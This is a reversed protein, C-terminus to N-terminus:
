APAAGIIRVVRAQLQESLDEIKIWERKVSNALLGLVENKKKRLAPDDPNPRSARIAAVLSLIAAQSPSSLNRHWARNAGDDHTDGETSAATIGLNAILVENFIVYDFTDLYDRSSAVAAIVRDVRDEEVEWVSIEGDPDPQFDEAAMEDDTKGESEGVGRYWNPRTVRRLILAV